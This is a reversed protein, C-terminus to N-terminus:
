YVRQYSYVGKVNHALYTGPHPFNVMNQFHEIPVNFYHYISGNLFEVELTGASYGISRINTSIVTTRIM